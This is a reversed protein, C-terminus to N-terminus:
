RCLLGLVGVFVGIIFLVGAIIDYTQNRWLMRDYDPM